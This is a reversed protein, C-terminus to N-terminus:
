IKQQVDCFQLHSQLKAGGPWNWFRDESQQDYEQQQMDSYKM